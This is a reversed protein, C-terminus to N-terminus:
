VRARSDMAVFDLGVDCAGVHVRHRRMDSATSPGPVRAGRTPHIARAEFPYQSKTEAAFRQQDIRANRAFPRAELNNISVARRAVFDRDFIRVADTASHDADLQVALRECLTRRL